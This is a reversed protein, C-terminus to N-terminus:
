VCNEYKEDQVGNISWQADSGTCKHIVDCTQTKAFTILVNEDRGVLSPVPYADGGAAPKMMLELTLSPLNCHDCHITLPQTVQYSEDLDNKILANVVHTCRGTECGCEIEFEPVM